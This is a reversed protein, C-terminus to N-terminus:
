WDTLCVGVTNAVSAAALEKVGLQGAFVRSTLNTAEQCTHAVICPLGLLLVAKSERMWQVRTAHKVGQRPLRGPCAPAVAPVGISGGLPIDSWTHRAASERRHTDDM